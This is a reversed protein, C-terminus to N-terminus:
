YLKQRKLLYSLLVKNFGHKLDANVYDIQYQYCKEKLNHYFHKMHKQYDSRIDAPNLKIEKGSELDQFRYPRNDFDFKLEKEIDSVHFLIVEHKNHRLHQLASLVEDIHNSDDLMDSFIIVLSRQHIIEAIQHICTATSTNNQAEKRQTNLLKELEHYLYKVHTSTSKVDTNLLIDKAYCKLGVADRQKKMLHMISAASMIAFGLKNLAEPNLIKQNPFYMSSSIDLLINCRLNTEEEFRKVFLKDTKAFVKWDINRTSEGPNYLRHEAFEVSFGHYPSKHLGTIFGEVVQKALMELGGANFLIEETIKLDM